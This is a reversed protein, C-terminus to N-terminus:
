VAVSIGINRACEAQTYREVFLWHLLKMEEDTLEQIAAYLCDERGEGMM